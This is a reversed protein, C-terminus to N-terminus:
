EEVAGVTLMRIFIGVEKSGKVDMENERKM